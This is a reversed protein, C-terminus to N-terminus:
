RNGAVDDDWQWTERGHLQEYELAERVMAALVRVLGDPMEIQGAPHTRDSLQEDGPVTAVVIRSSTRLGGAGAQELRWKPM